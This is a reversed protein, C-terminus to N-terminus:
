ENFVKSLKTVGFSSTVLLILIILIHISLLPDSNFYLKSTHSSVLSPWDKTIFSALLYLNDFLSHIDSYSALSCIEIVYNNHQIMIKKWPIIPYSALGNILLNPLIYSISNSYRQSAISYIALVRNHISNSFLRSSFKPNLNLITM